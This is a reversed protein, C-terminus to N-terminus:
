RCIPHSGQFEWRELFHLDPFVYDAYMSTSGITIDSAFYLPVRELDTLAAIGADGAPLAYSPSGM